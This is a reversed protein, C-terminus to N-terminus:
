NGGALVVVNATGKIEVDSVGEGTPWQNLFGQTKTEVPDTGSSSVVGSFGILALAQVIGVSTSAGKVGGTIVIATGATNLAAPMYGLGATIAAANIIDVVQQLTFNGAVFTATVALPAGALNPATFEFVEGGVFTVGGLVADGTLAAFMGGWRLTVETTAQVYLFEVEALSLGPLPIFSSPSNIAVACDTSELKGFTVSCGLGLPQIKQPGSSSSSGGCGCGDGGIVIQGVLDLKCTM